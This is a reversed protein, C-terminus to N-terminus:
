NWAGEALLSRVSTTEHDYNTDFMIGPLLGFIYSAHPVDQWVHRVAVEFCRRSLQAVHFADGQSLCALIWCWLEVPLKELPSKAMLPSSAVIM